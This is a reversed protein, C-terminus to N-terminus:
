VSRRKRPLQEAALRAAILENRGLRGDAYARCLRVVINDDLESLQQLIGFGENGLMKAIESKYLGRQRPKFNSSFGVSSKGVESVLSPSSKNPLIELYSKDVNKDPISPCNQRPAPVAKDDDEPLFMPAYRCSGQAGRTVRAYGRTEFKLTVRHVTKVTKGLEQAMLRQGPWADLTVCNLRDTIIYALCKEAPSVRPDSMVRKLWRHKRRSVQDLLTEQPQTEM